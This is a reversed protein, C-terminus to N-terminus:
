ILNAAKEAVVRDTQLQIGEGSIFLARCGPFPLQEVFQLGEEPGLILATKAIIDALQASPAVVTVSALGNAVSQGTRPDILHNRVQNGALWRRKTVASTAVARNSLVLETLNGEFTVPNLVAVKWGRSNGPERGNVYLDGGASLMFDSFGSQKLLRVANDVTLGKGIGGLDIQTDPPLTIIRRQTELRVKQYRMFSPLVFQSTFSLQNQGILEFSCNYGAAELAKLVTPDFIGKTMAAMELAQAITAYLLPSAQEVYGVKNLRSLESEPQFRSLCDEAQAFLLKVQEAAKEGRHRAANLGSPKNTSSPSYIVLEIATNMARFTSVVEVNEKKM